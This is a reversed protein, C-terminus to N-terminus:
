NKMRDFLLKLGTGMLSTKACHEQAMANATESTQRMAAETSNSQTAAGVSDSNRLNSCNNRALLVNPVMLIGSRVFACHHTHPVGASTCGMAGLMTTTAASTAVGSNCVNSYEGTSSTLRCCLTNMQMNSLSKVTGLPRDTSDLPALFAAATPLTDSQWSNCRNPSIPNPLPRNPDISAHRHRHTPTKVPNEKSALHLKASPAAAHSTQHPFAIYSPRTYPHCSDCHQSHVRLVLDANQSRLRRLEHENIELEHHLDDMAKKKTEIIQQQGITSYM